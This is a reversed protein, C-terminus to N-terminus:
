GSDAESFDECRCLSDRGDILEKKKLLIVDDRDYTAKALRDLGSKPHHNNPSFM